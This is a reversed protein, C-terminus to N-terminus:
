RTIFCNKTKDIRENWFGPRDKEVAQLAHFLELYYESMGQTRSPHFMDAYPFLKDGIKVQWINLRHNPDICLNNGWEFLEDLIGDCVDGALIISPNFFLIQEKLFDLGMEAYNKLDRRNSKPKGDSKKVNCYAVGNLSEIFDYYDTSQVCERVEDDSIELSGKQALNLVALYQKLHTRLTNQGPFVWDDTRIREQIAECLDYSNGPEPDYAERNLIMVKLSAKAYKEPFLVGDWITTHLYEPFFTKYRQKFDSDWQNYQKQISMTKTGMFISELKNLEKEFAAM